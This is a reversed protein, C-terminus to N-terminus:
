EQVNVDIQKNKRIKKLIKVSVIITVFTSTQKLPLPQAIIWCLLSLRFHSIEQFKLEDFVCRSGVWDVSERNGHGILTIVMCINISNVSALFIISRRYPVLQLWKRSPSFPIPPKQYSINQEERPIIPTIIIRNNADDCNGEADDINYCAYAFQSGGFTFNKQCGPRNIFAMQQLLESLSRLKCSFNEDQQLSSAIKLIM